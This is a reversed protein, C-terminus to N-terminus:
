LYALRNLILVLLAVVWCAFAALILPWFYLRLPKM